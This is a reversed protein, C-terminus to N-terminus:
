TNQPQMGSGWLSSGFNMIKIEFEYNRSFKHSILKFIKVLTTIELMFIRELEELIIKSFQVFKYFM